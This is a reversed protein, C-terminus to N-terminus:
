WGGALTRTWGLSHDRQEFNEEAGVIRCLERQAGRERGDAKTREPGVPPEDDAVDDRQREGVRRQQKPEDQEKQARMAFPRAIHEESCAADRTFRNEANGQDEDSQADGHAHQKQHLAKRRREVRDLSVRKLLQDSRRALRREETMFHGAGDDLM